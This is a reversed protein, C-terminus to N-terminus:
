HHGRALVARFQGLVELDHEHLARQFPSLAEDRPLLEKVLTLISDSNGSLFDTLGPLLRKRLGTERWRLILTRPPKESLLGCLFDEPGTAQNVVVWLLRLLAAYAISASTKFPGFLKEGPHKESEAVAPTGAIGAQWNTRGITLAEDDCRLWVWTRMPYVSARNFKPRHLRLLESERSIAAEESECKEWTISRVEHVLRLVKRPTRDRRANKYTGLRARLNKSQGIYLIRGDAGAMIYVGPERPAASFFEAGLRSALPRPPQFLHLQREPM